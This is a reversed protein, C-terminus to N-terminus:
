GYLFRTVYNEILEQINLVAIRIFRPATRDRFTVGAGIEEILRKFAVRSYIIGEEKQYYRIERMIVLGAKRRRM